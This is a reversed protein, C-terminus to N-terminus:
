DAPNYRIYLAESARALLYTVVLNAILTFAAVIPPWAKLALLSVAAILAPTLALMSGLMQVLARFSRQTPDDMDPFMLLVVLQVAVVTLAVGPLGIAGALALDYAVPKAILLTLSALLSITIPAMSSALIEMSCIQFPSFPLPKQVDVRRLMELFGSQGFGLAFSGVMIAQLPLIALVLRDSEDFLVLLPAGCAIVAFLILLAFQTRLSFQLERWIIAWQGRMNLRSFLGIKRPKLKGERALHILALGFDGSKQVEQKGLNAATHRAAMDYLHDAQKLAVVLLVGSGILLFAGGLLGQSWRDYIPMLAFDAGAAAPFAVVRFLTSNATEILFSISDQRMVSAVILAIFGVGFACILGITLKRVFRAGNSDRNIYMGVAFSLSVGFLSVLLFAAIMTKGVLPAREPDPLNAFLFAIGDASRRGGFVLIVLPVFLTVLYDIVFRHLMVLRPSLPVPFLVDSDAAKYNGPPRFVALARFVFVLAFISMFISFVMEVGPLEFAPLDAPLETTRREFLNGAFVMFWWGIIMAAGIVRTPSQFARRFSNIITRFTLYLLPRM